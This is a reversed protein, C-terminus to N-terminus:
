ISVAAERHDPAGLGPGLRQLEDGAEVGVDDEEIEEHAIDGSEHGGAADTLDRGCGGDDQHGGGVGSGVLVRGAGEPERGDEALAVEAGLGDDISNLWGLSATEAVRATDPLPVQVLLTTGRGPAGRLRWTGHLGHVRDAITTLGLGPRPKAGALGIGDDAVVLELRGAGVLTVRVQVTHAHAHQAVNGLAEEVIRYLAFRMPEQVVPSAPDDLARVRPDFTLRIALCGAYAAVVSRLAPELGIRTSIPHLRHSMERVDRERLEDVQERVDALLARARAPEHDVLELVEGLRHWLVVLRTQVHGHLQEAVRRRVQDDAATMLRRARQLDAVHELGSSALAETHLVLRALRLLSEGAPRWLRAPVRAGIVVVAGLRFQGVAVPLREGALGFPGIAALRAPDADQSEAILTLVGRQDDGALLRVAAADAVTRLGEVVALRDADLARRRVEPDHKWALIASRADDGLDSTQHM